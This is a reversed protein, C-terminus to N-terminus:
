FIISGVFWLFVSLLIPITLNDSHYPSIAEIFTVFIGGLVVLPLSILHGVFIVQSIAISLMSLFFVTLSGEISKEKVWPIKYRHKGYRSGILGGLGDGFALSFIAAAGEYRMFFFYTVVTFSFAYFVLGIHKEDGESFTRRISKPALALMITVILPVSTAWLYDNFLFWLLPWVGMSTHTLERLTNSSVGRDKLFKALSVIVIVYVFSLVFALPDNNLLSM